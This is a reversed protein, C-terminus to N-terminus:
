LRIASRSDGSHGTPGNREHGIGGNIPDFNRLTRREHALSQISSIKVKMLYRHKGSDQEM